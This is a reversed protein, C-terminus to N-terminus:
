ICSTSMYHREMMPLLLTNVNPYAYLNTYTSCENDNTSSSQTPGGDRQRLVARLIDIATIRGHRLDELTAAFRQQQIQLFSVNCGPSVSKTLKVLMWPQQHSKRFQMLSALWCSARARYASLIPLLRHNIFHQECCQRFL